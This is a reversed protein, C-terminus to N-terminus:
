FSRGFNVQIKAVQDRHYVISQTVSAPDPYHFRMQQGSERV